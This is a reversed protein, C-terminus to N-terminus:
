SLREQLQITKPFLINNELHLHLLLDEIFEKFLQYLKKEDETIQKASMLGLTLKEIKMMRELEGDHDHLLMQIPMKVMKFREELQANSNFANVMKKIKPFLMLEEKKMHASFEGASVNFLNLLEQHVSQHVSPQQTLKELLTSIEKIQVTVYEHHKNQIHMALDDFEWANYDPFLEYEKGVELNNFFTHLQHILVHPEMNIKDCAQQISQKGSCSYDINNQRFINSVSYNQAVIEGVISENTIEM